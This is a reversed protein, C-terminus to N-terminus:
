SQDAPEQAGQMLKLLEVARKILTIAEHNAFSGAANEAALQLYKVARHLDRGQEFHVALEAAIETVREGYIREGANGVRLHMQARRSVALRNYLVDMYLGHIFKHRPTIEGDPLEVPWSPSLFQHRRALGECREEVPVVDSALAAAIAIASCELGVVSAAELVRQEESGLREIQKEILRRVNEPVGLELEALEVRLRWIGDEEAIIGEALLYDALNVMFLPNGETRRHILLALQKPFQNRPFKMDLFEAVAEETLYELPLEKALRRALLEQKVGKLPHESLIVEVPRYTAIVLLRATERRRALYSVLDLTSYDSWHLDEMVLIFPTEATLAEIADAMERLMRDRTAGQIQQQLGERDAATILAPMQILWTPAYRRLVEIARDGGPERCLRSFAELVPLYPEGAGYQELCQGRAISVAHLASARDLFAEVLTTKGIGPEGTVFVVQRDAKLATELWSQMRALAAERGFLSTLPTSPAFNQPRPAANEPAPFSESEVPDPATGGTVKGIFRYGRRHATEIFQPSKADDELAERLQRVSDKLVAESVFTDGWVASLLQQKTVLHGPREVLYKLVAFAKPRLALTRTGRWLCENSEDLRFPGFTIQKDRRM